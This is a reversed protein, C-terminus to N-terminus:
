AAELTFVTVLPPRFTGPPFAVDYCGNRYAASALRHAKVVERYEAEYTNREEETEAHCLPQPSKKRRHRPKAFPSEQEIQKMGRVTGTGEALREKEALMDHDRVIQRFRQQRMGASLHEWSRLPTLEIHVQKTYKSPDVERHDAGLKWWLTRDIYEFELPKGQSLAETTSFGKWDAATKVLGDKVVNCAGYGLLAEARSDSIIEEVRARSSWFHGERGYLRNLEKAVISQFLQLFPSANHIQDDGLSFVLEMHNMNTTASHLMVPHRVLARGLGAGIIGNVEDAPKLLFTRDICQLTVHYTAGSKWIRIRRGM